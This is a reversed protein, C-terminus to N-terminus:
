ERRRRRALGLVALAVVFKASSGGDVTRMDCTCQASVDHTPLEENGVEGGSGGAGVVESAGVGGVGAGGVGVGGVGAGGAGGTGTTPNPLVEFLGELQADPPGGQGADGFWTVGEQVLGFHEDYVGTQLPAHMTFVFKYTEGPQVVGSVQAYRNPGPWEAGAFVSTRDRPETTALKTNNDWPKLGVNQMELSVEVTEGALIQVPGVSAYPFSQSVFKAAYDPGSNAYAQLDALSGNFKNRDVNGSVGPVSGTSSYQFMLWDSWYNDPLNPCNYSYNPIWLPYGGFDYSAVNDQWFYKGTYIIPKKGTAAEVHQCWQKLKSVITAKSQGGTEEVDVVPPLDGKGLQGIANLMVNAQAIADQQPLFYQYAGRVMGVSKMGNWNDDFWSDVSTGYSVRSIGFEIGSNKVSQWNVAGQWVSVDIGEVTVGKACVTFAEETEGISESEVSDVGCGLFAFSVVLSAGLGRISSSMRM